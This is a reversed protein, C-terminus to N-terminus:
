EAAAMGTGLNGDGGFFGSNGVDAVREPASRRDINNTSCIKRQLM